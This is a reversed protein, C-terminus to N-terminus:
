LCISRGWAVYKPQREYVIRQPYQENERQADPRIGPNITRVSGWFDAQDAAALQRKDHWGPGGNYSSLAAGMQDCERPYHIRTYLAHMYRSQARMSWDPSYVDVDGNEDPFRAATAPTFQALGAAYPSRALPDFGSEQELQAAAIPIPADLGWTLRWERTLVPRYKRAIPPPTDLEEAQAARILPPPKEPATCGSCLVAVLILALRWGSM